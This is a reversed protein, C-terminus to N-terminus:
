ESPKTRMVKPPRAPRAAAPPPTVKKASKALRKLISRRDNFATPLGQNAAGVNKQFHLCGLFGNAKKAAQETVAQVDSIPGEQSLLTATAPIDAAAAQEVPEPASESPDAASHVSVLEADLIQPEADRMIATDEEGGEVKRYKHKTLILNMPGAIAREFLTSMDSSCVLAACGPTLQLTTSGRSNDALEIFTWLM